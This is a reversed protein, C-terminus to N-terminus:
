SLNKLILQLINKQKFIFYYADKGPVGDHLMKSSIFSLISLIVSQLLVIGKLWEISHM